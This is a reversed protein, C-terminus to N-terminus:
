WNKYKRRDFFYWERKWIENDQSDVEYYGYGFRGFRSVVFVIVVLILMIAVVGILPNLEENHTEVYNYICTAAIIIYADAQVTDGFVMDYVGSNTSNVTFTPQDTDPIDSLEPAKNEVLSASSSTGFYYTQDAGVNYTTGETLIQSPIKLMSGNESEVFQGDVIDGKISSLPGYTTVTEAFTSTFTASDTVTKDAFVSTYTDPVSIAYVAGLGTVTVHYESQLDASIGVNELTVDAPVDFTIVGDKLFALQATTSSCYKLDAPTYAYRGHTTTIPAVIDALIVFKSSGSESDTYTVVTVRYNTGNEYGGGISTVVDGDYYWKGDTFTLPVQKCEAANITASAYNSAVRAYIPGETSVPIKAVTLANTTTNLELCAGVSKSRLMVYYDAGNQDNEFQCSYLYSNDKPLLISLDDNISEVKVLNVDSRSTAPFGLDAIPTLTCEIGYRPWHSSNNERFYVESYENYEDDWVFIFEMISADMNLLYDKSVKYVPRSSGTFDDPITTSFTQQNSDTSDDWVSLLYGETYTYDLQVETTQIPNTGYVGEHEETVEKTNVDNIVPLAFTGLLIIAVVISVLFGITGNNEM